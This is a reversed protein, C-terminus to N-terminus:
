HFVFTISYKKYHKAQVWWILLGCDNYWRNISTGLCGLWVETNENSINLAGKWEYTSSLPIEGDNFGSFWMIWKDNIRTM